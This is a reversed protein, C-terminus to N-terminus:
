KRITVNFVDGVQSFNNKTFETNTETVYLMIKLLSFTWYKDMSISETINKGINGLINNINKM